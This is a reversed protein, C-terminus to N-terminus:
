YGRVKTPVYPTNNDSTIIKYTIISAVINIGTGIFWNYWVKKSQIKKAQSTYANNYDPNKLLDYNLPTLIAPNGSTGGIAPALGLIPSLISVIFTTTAASKYSKYNNKADILGKQYNHNDPINQKPISYVDDTNKIQASLVFPISVLLLVILRKM